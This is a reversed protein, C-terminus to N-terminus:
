NRKYFEEKVYKKAAAVDEGDYEWFSVLGNNIGGMRIHEDWSGVFNHITYKTFKNGNHGPVSGTYLCCCCWGCEKGSYYGSRLRQTRIKISKLYVLKMFVRRAM